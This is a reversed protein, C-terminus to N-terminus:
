PRAPGAEAEEMVKRFSRQLSHYAPKLYPTAQVQNWGKWSYSPLPGEIRGGKARPLAEQLRPGENSVVLHFAAMGIAEGRTWVPEAQSDTGGYFLLSSPDAVYLLGWPIRVEIMSGTRDVHWAALTSSDPSAPDATGAPLVSRSVFLPPFVTGDRGWRPPNAQTIMEVFPSREVLALKVDKKRQILRKGPVFANTIWENPHFNEAMLLTLREPHDVKLLFSAGEALRPAPRPLERSGARNPLTSLAVWFAERQWDVGSGNAALDLRLYLYAYDSMARVARIRGEPTEAVTTAGEWDKENGRLL